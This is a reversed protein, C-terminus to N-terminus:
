SDILWRGSPGSGAMALERLAEMQVPEPVMFQAGQNETASTTQPVSEQMWTLELLKGLEQLM